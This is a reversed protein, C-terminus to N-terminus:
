DDSRSSVMESKTKLKNSQSKRIQFRCRYQRSCLARDASHSEPFLIWDCWSQICSCHPPRSIPESRPLVDEFRKQFFESSISVVRWLQVAAANVSRLIPLLYEMIGCCWLRAALFNANTSISTGDLIGILVSTHWLQQLKQILLRDNQTSDADAYSQNLYSRFTSVFKFMKLQGAGWGKESEQIPSRKSDRDPMGSFNRFRKLKTLVLIM